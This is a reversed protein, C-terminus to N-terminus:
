SACSLGHICVKLDRSFNFSDILKGTEVDLELITAPSIGVLITGRPTECLGRVWIPKAAHPNRFLPKFVREPRGHKRLWFKMRTVLHRELLRQVPPLPELDITRICRGSPEFVRIARHHSDNVILQGSRTVLVNHCGRISPDQFVIETPKLRVLCGLRNLLVLPRNGQVAVANLHVQDPAGNAVSAMAFRLRVDQTKDIKEPSLGFRTVIEPDETAWWSEIVNGDRDIKLAAEVGTSTVWIADGDWALEHLNTFLGHSIQRVPELDRTFVHLSHYSAAIVEHGNVLVGRGGRTGGRPNPDHEVAPNVPVLPQRALVSKRTWDLQVLEGSRAIPACRVVTAFYVLM